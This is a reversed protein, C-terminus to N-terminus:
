RRGGGSLGSCREAHADAAPRSALVYLGSAPQAVLPLVSHCAPCRLPIMSREAALPPRWPTLPEDPTFAAEGGVLEATYRRGADDTHVGADDTHIRPAAFLGALPDHAPLSPLIPTM